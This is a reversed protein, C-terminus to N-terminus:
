MLMNILYIIGLHAPYFIYFLYKLKRSGPEENYFILLVVSILSFWVYPTDKMFVACYILTATLFSILKTKKDRFLVVSLPLIIGSIGYDLYLSSINNRRLLWFAFIIGASIITTVVPLYIRKKDKIADIYSFCVVAAVSFTLVINLFWCESRLTLTSNTILDEAIYVAQCGGGLALLQILYKKRNHTYFCGEGIFFAFLPFAIRGAWRLWLVEPFLFYGIHDLAMTLCAIVKLQTRNM